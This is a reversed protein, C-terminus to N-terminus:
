KKMKRKKGTGSFKAVTKVANAGPLDLAQMVGGVKSLIKHKQALKVGSKVVDMVGAGSQPTYGSPGGYSYTMSNGIKSVSTM